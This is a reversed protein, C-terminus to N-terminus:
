CNASILPRDLCATLMSGARLGTPPTSQPNTTLSPLPLPAPGPTRDETQPASVEGDVVAALSFTPPLRISVSGLPRSLVDELEGAVATAAQQGAELLVGSPYIVEALQVPTSFIPPPIRPPRSITTDVSPPASM